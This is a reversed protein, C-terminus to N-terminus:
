INGKQVHNAVGLLRSSLRVNNKEAADLSVDFRVHEDVVRFNIVSGQQLGDECESVLLLAGPAGRLVRAVRAADSGAVFLLHLLGPHDGERVAKVTIPRGNLTRGAVTRALEALMDDSGAVGIQVPSAQDSFATSPFETYGLFKYLFAAKVRREDGSQPEAAPQPAVTAAGQSQVQPQVQPQAPATAAAPTPVPAPSSVSAPATSPVPVPAPAPASAPAPAQALIEASGVVATVGALAAGVVARLVHRRWPQRVPTFFPESM